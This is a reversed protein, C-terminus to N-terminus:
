KLCPLTRNNLKHRKSPYLHDSLEAINYLIPQGTPIPNEECFGRSFINRFYIKCKHERSQLIDFNVKENRTKNQYM